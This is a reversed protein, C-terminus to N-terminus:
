VDLTISEEWGLQNNISLQDLNPKYENLWEKGIILAWSEWSLIGSRTLLANLQHSQLNNGTMEMWRKSVLSIVLLKNPKYKSWSSLLYPIITSQNDKNPISLYSAEECRKIFDADYNHTVYNKSKITYSIMNSPTRIVKKIRGYQKRLAKTARGRLSYVRVAKARFAAYSKETSHTYCHIHATKQIKSHEFGIVYNSFYRRILHIFAKKETWNPHEKMHVASPPRDWPIDMYFAIPPLIKEEPALRQLHYKFLDPKDETPLETDTSM